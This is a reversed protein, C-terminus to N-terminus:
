KLNATIVEAIQKASAAGLGDVNALEDIGDALQGINTAKADTLAKIYRAQIGFKALDAIPSERTLTTSPQPPEQDAVAEGTEETNSKDGTEADERVPEDDAPTADANEGKSEDDAQNSEGTVPETERVPENAPAADSREKIRGVTEASTSPLEDIDISQRIVTPIQTIAAENLGPIGQLTEKDLVDGITTLGADKLAQIYRGHIDFEALDDVSSARTLEDDEDDDNVDDAPAAVKVAAPTEVIRVAANISLLFAGTAEDVDVTQGPIGVDDVYGNLKIRM